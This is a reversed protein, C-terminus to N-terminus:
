LIPQVQVGFDSESLNASSRAAAILRNCVPLFSRALCLFAPAFEATVEPVVTVWVSSQSENPSKPGIHVLVSPTRFMSDIGLSDFYNEALEASLM